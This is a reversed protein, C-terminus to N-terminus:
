GSGSIGSRRFHVAGHERWRGGSAPSGRREGAACLTISADIVFALLLLSSLEGLREWPSAIGVPMAVTDGLFDFQRLATIERFNLNPPFAFNSVLAVFRAACAALGLWLRGTGFYTYVFGAIAAVTAFVPVQIWQHARGIEQTTRSHMIALEGAAIGAVALAALAFFLNAWTREKIGILLHPLAMTACAGIVLAWTFTVWSM